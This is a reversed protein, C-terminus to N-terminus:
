GSGYGGTMLKAETIKAAAQRAVDFEARARDALGTERKSDHARYCVYAIIAFEWTAPFDFTNGVATMLTPTRTYFATLANAGTATAGKLDTYLKDGWVSWALPTGASAGWQTRIEHRPAYDLPIGAYTVAFVNTYNTLATILDFSFTAGDTPINTSDSMCGTTAAFEDSGDNAWRMLEDDGFSADTSDALRQRIKTNLQTGTSM